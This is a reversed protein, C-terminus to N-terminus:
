ILETMSSSPGFPVEYSDDTEVAAILVHQYWCMGGRVVFANEDGADDFTKWRGSRVSYHALGRKGAIAIYRGDHSSIVSRIPRQNMLYAPAIPVQQWLSADTSIGAAIPADFGRYIILNSGSLLFTRAINASSFCTTVASKTMELAWLRSDAPCVLLLDSGGNIWGLDSIGLLWREENSESTSTDASFSNAGPKGYASFIAWGHEYGVVLCYGDPSYSLCTISGTTALSAPPVVKHSLPINGVYDKATYVHIEGRRCGIALLSFRANIAAKTGKFGEEGPSHFEYGRFLRQTEESRELTEPRKQIAYARGDSGIWVALSMSRDHVMTVISSGKHLWAMRSTLETSTQRGADDPTWRICQVAAPKKTAVVVESDLALAVAIGADIRIVMRFKLNVERFGAREQEIILRDTQASKYQKSGEHIQQYVRSSPDVTLSYTVLFGNSTQVVAISADPRLLVTVNPGYNRVSSVSRHAVALVLSTRLGLIDNDEENRVDGPEQATDDDEASGKRRKRNASYIRPAGLPWYM